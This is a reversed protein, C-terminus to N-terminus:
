WISRECARRMSRKKHSSPMTCRATFRRTCGPAAGSGSGMSVTIEVVSDNARDYVDSVTGGSTEAAPTGTVAAVAPTGSSDAVVAYTAAGAGAALVIASAGAATKM